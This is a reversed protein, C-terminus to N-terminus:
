SISIGFKYQTKTKREKKREKQCATSGVIDPLSFVKALKVSIVNNESISFNEFYIFKWIL